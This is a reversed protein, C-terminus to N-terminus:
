GFGAWEISIYAVERSEPDWGCLLHAEKRQQIMDVM